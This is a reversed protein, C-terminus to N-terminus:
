GPPPGDSDTTGPPDMQLLRRYSWFLLGLVLAWATLMFILAGASM